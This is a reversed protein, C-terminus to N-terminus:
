LYRLLTYKSGHPPLYFGPPAEQRILDMDLDSFPISAIKLKYDTVGSSHKPHNVLKRILNDEYNKKTLPDAEEYRLRSSDDDMPTDHLVHHIMEPTVFLPNRNARELVDAMSRCRLIKKVFREFFSNCTHPTYSILSDVDLLVIEGTDEDLAVNAMHLDSHTYGIARLNILASAVGEILQFLENRDDGLSIMKYRKMITYRHRVDNLKIRGASIVRCLGGPPSDKYTTPLNIVIKNRLEKTIKVCLPITSDFSSSLIPYVGWDGTEAGKGLLDGSPDFKFTGIVQDTHEIM